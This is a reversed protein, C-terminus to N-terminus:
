KKKGLFEKAAPHNPRLKLLKKYSKTADSKKGLANQIAALHEWYVYDNEFHKSKILKMTSLAEEYNGKRFLAWAKSDLFAESPSDGEMELAKVVM